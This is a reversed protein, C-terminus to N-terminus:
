SQGIPVHSEPRKERVWKQRQKNRQVRLMEAAILWIFCQGLKHTHTRVHMCKVGLTNKWRNKNHIWTHQHRHARPRHWNKFTLRISLCLWGNCFIYLFYCDSHRLLSQSVNKQGKQPGTQVKHAYLYRGDSILFFQAPNYGQRMINISISLNETAAARPYWHFSGNCAILLETM